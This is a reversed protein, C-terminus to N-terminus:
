FELWVLGELLFVLLEPNKPLIPLFILYYEVFIPYITFFTSGYIPYVIYVILAKVLLLSNFLTIGNFM